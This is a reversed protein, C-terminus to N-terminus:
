FTRSWGLTWRTGGDSARAVGLRGEGFAGFGYQITPGYQYHTDDEREGFAALEVALNERPKIGVVFGAQERTRDERTTSGHLDLTIWGEGMPGDFGRGITLGVGVRDAQTSDELYDRGLSLEVAALWPDFWNPVHAGEPLPVPVRLFSRVRGDVAIDSYGTRMLRPLGVVHGGLDLGFTLNRAGGWEFYAGTWGERGGQHSLLAYVDGKARPWPGATAPTALLALLLLLVRM